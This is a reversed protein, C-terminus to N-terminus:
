LEELKIGATERTGLIWLLTAAIAFASFVGFVLAISNATGLMLGVVFPTLMSAGRAMSSGMGLGIARIHTPYTEASYPWLIFTTISVGVQGAVVMGVLLGTSAPPFFTLVFLAAAAIATSLIALPRRGMADMAFAVLPTAILFLVPAVSAYALADAVPIHFVSTFISPVWTVLGFTTFSILFWLLLLTVTRRRYAPEFLTRLGFRPAQALQREAPGTNEPLLVPAAGLKVLAKGAADIRGIRALWRPSEPLTLMALPLLLLPLAGIGFLWRWGLEPIIVTSALSAAAYGSMAIWQFIAFYRGRTATPALENIYTIAVPLAGGIAIGQVLRIAMLSGENPALACAFALVGMVVVSVAFVPMRGFREALGGLAMAGIFQGVYGASILLGIVSPALGWEASMTPMAYAIAVSDWSDFLMIVGLLVPAWLRLRFTRLEDLVEGVRLEAPSAATPREEPLPGASLSRDEAASAHKGLRCASLGCLRVAVAADDEGAKIACGCRGATAGIVLAFAAV